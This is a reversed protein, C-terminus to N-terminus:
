NQSTGYPYEIEEMSIKCKEGEREVVIWKQWEPPDLQPFDVRYHMHYSSSCERNLAATMMIEAVLLVNNVELVRVLEHFNDAKFTAEEKLEAMRMLGIQLGAESSLDGMYRNMFLNIALNVDRWSVGENEKLPGYVRFEEKEIQDPPLMEGSNKIAYEAAQEGAYWGVTLAGAGSGWPLGAMVDGAGYLGDISAQCYKNVKLGNGGSLRKEYIDDELMDYRFDKGSQKMYELLLWCGGEEALGWEIHKIQDETLCVTDRFLPLCVKGSRFQKKTSVATKGPWRYYSEGPLNYELLRRYADVSKAPWYTGSGAREMGKPGRIANTGEMNTLAAGARYAIALGDGTTSPPFYTNMLYGTNNPYLRFATGTTLIVVRANIIKFQGTRTDLGTAGVVKKGHTLLSTIATRNLIKIKQKLMEKSLTPKLNRGRYYLASRKKHLQPFLHYSGDPEKYFEVGISELYKVRDIGQSALVYVLDQNLFGSSMDTHDHVLDEATWNSQGPIILGGFHDNGTGGGGSRKTNAKDSVLVNLGSRRASLAAMCGAMGGGIVLVDTELRVREPIDKIDMISFRRMM